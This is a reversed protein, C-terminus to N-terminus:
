KRSWKNIEDDKFKKFASKYAPGSKLKIPYSEYGATNRMMYSGSIDGDEDVKPVIYHSHM